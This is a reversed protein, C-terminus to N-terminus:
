SIRKHGGKAGNGVMSTYPEVQPAYKVFRHCDPCDVRLQQRGDSITQWSYKLGKEPKGYRACQIM